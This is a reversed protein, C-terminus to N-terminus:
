HGEGLYGLQELQELTRSSVPGALAEAETTTPLVLTGPKMEVKEHKGASLPWSETGRSVTGAPCEAECALQIQGVGAKKGPTFVVVTREGNVTLTGVEEVTTRPKEGWELNARNERAAEPDTLTASAIPAAFTFTLVADGRGPEVRWGKRVPWGSVRALAAAMEAKRRTDSRSLDHKEAPDVGLNYLEEKGNWTQVIYKWGQHVVGWRETDRMLHGLIQPRDVLLAKLPDLGAAANRDVFPRLSVGDSPPTDRIGLFDAITPAVDILGVPETVRHPGGGWGKPPRIWFMVRVLEDYLTHNHEYGGHDWFEEGHDSVMVTLTQGPLADVQALLAALQDTVFNVEALYAGEIWDKGESTLKGRQMLQYINWHNFQPPVEAPRAATFRSDYPAPANYFAHPDMFHLFLFSDEDQHARLWGMAREVQDDAKAGNEYYWHDMGANFGFRPVLHVNGVVGGTAIGHGRLTEALTPAHIAGLPYRGTLVTRFSPRTRPAPARANDFIVAQDAWKDLEPSTSAARGHVHLADYRLTDIGILLVRRPPQAPTGAITPTSLMVWDADRTARPATAFALKVQRGSWKTLDVSVAHIDDDAAAEGSWAVEGDVTVTVDAGDGTVEGTVPDAQIALGFRLNAGAPVAVSFSASAPAPLFLAPRTVPGKSLTASAFESASEGSGALTLRAVDRAVEDARLVMAEQAPDRKSRLYIKGKEVRWRDGPTGQDIAASYPVERDGRFLRAGSPAYNPAPMDCAFPLEHVWTTPTRESWGDPLPFTGAAAAAPADPFSLEAGDLHDLARWTIAGSPTGLDVAPM